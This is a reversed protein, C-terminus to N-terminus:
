PLDGCTLNIQSRLSGRAYGADDMFQMGGFQAVIRRWLGAGGQQAEIEGAILGTKSLVYRLLEHKLTIGSVRWYLAIPITVNHTITQPANWESSFEPVDAAVHGWLAVSRAFSAGTCAVITPSTEAEAGGDIEVILAKAAAADATATLTRFTASGALLKIAAEISTAWYGEYSVPM